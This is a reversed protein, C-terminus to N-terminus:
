DEGSQVSRFATRRSPKFATLRKGDIEVRYRRFADELFDATAKERRTLSFAEVVRNRVEALEPLRPPAHSLVRVLHYGYPSRIPGVWEGEPAAAVANAFDAGLTSEVRDLGEDLEAGVPSPEGPPPDDTRSGAAWTTFVSSDHAFVQRFHIRAPVAWATQNAVFFARLDEENAPTSAGELEEALFLVKQVVRQRVIGDNKDLGLRLGERYLIEDELERQDVEEDAKGGLDPGGSKQARAAHLAALREGKIEIDYASKPRPAVAFIAAGIVLFQVLRSGAV